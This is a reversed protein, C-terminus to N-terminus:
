KKLEGKLTTKLDKRIDKAKMISEQEDAYSDYRMFIYGDPSMLFIYGADVINEEPISQAFARVIDGGDAYFVMLSPFQYELLSLLESSNGEGSMVVMSEVRGVDRDLSQPVQRLTFLANKCAEGCISPMLYVLKWKDSLASQQVEFGQLSKLNLEAFSVYPEIFTGKNSKKMTEPPMVFPLIFFPLVFVAVILLFSWNLRKSTNKQAKEDVVPDIM